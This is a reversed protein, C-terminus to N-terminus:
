KLRSEGIRITIMVLIMVIMIIMLIMILMLIINCGSIGSLISFTKSYQVKLLPSALLHM